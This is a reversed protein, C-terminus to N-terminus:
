DYRLDHHGALDAPLEHCYLRWPQPVAQACFGDHAFGDDPCCRWGVCRSRV